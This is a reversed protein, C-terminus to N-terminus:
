GLLRQTSRLILYNQELLYDMIFRICRNRIYTKRKQNKVVNGVFASILGKLIGKGGEASALTIINSWLPNIHIPVQLMYDERKMSYRLGKVSRPDYHRFISQFGSHVKGARGM